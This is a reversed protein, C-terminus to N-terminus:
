RGAHSIGGVWEPVWDLGILDAYTQRPRVVAWADGEAMGRDAVRRRENQDSIAMLDAPDLAIRAVLEEPHPKRAQEM